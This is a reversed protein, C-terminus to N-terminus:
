ESIGTMFEELAGPNMTGASVTSNLWVAIATLVGVLASNKFVEKIRDQQQVDSVLWTYVITILIAVAVFNYGTLYEM